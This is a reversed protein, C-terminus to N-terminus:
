RVSDPRQPTVPTRFRARAAELVEVVRWDGESEAIDLATEDDSSRLNIDAGADILARAADPNGHHAALMLATERYARPSENAADVKAGHQVLVPITEAKGEAAARMLPTHGKDDVANPDAGAEALIQVVTANGGSVADLLISSKAIAAKARLLERVFGPNGSRAAISMATRGQRDAVNPDAHAELLLKAVEVHGGDAAKVLPTARDENAFNVDAGGGLLSRVAETHGRRAAICLPTSESMRFNPDLGEALLAQVRDKEGAGAADFLKRQADDGSRAEVAGAGCPVFLLCSVFVLALRDLPRM